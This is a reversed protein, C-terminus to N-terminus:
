FIEKVMLHNWPLSRSMLKKLLKKINSRERKILRRSKRFEGKETLTLDEGQNIVKKHENQQNINNSLKTELLSLL